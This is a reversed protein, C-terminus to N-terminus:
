PKSPVIVVRYNGRMKSSDGHVILSHDSTRYSYRQFDRSFDLHFMEASFTPNEALSIMGEKYGNRIITVTTEASIAQDAFEYTIFAPFTYSRRLKEIAETNSATRRPM